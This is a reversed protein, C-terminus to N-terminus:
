RFDERPSPRLMALEGRLKAVAYRLRSKVTEMGVGTLQAIENLSLGGEHQLLFADRQVAPLTALASRLQEALQRANLRAEPEESRAAPLAEITARVGGDGSMEDEADISAFKVKGSTRWYDILRHHALTYLWTTFKATPTYRERARIANMWVDQFLEDATGANGCHRLLYRYVGGKHRAYLMEFATARGAAYSLMLAEDSDEALNAAATPPALM